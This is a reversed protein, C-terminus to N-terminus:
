RGRNAWVEDMDVEDKRRRLYAVAQNSYRKYTSAGIRFEKYLDRNERVGEYDVLSILRPRTLGVRRAVEDVGLSYFDLDNVKRLAVVTADPDNETVLRVAEGQNKTVKISIGPGEAEPDIVLTAVGPFIVRWDEGANIRGVVADLEKDSPQTKRGDMSAELIALARLKAKADLRKRSGPAVMRRIDEFESAFLAALDRPPRACIPLIRDPVETRLDFELHERAVKMFLTLGSQAYVYLHEESIEVMYHQAADRLGNMAQLSIVDDEGLCQLSVDSLCKRLCADFGITNKSDRRERIAGGKHVIVAKLLLEFARDMLILVTETRGRDWARNFHDVALVVSDVAKGLLTKAEKRM